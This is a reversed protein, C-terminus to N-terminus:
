PAPVYSFPLDAARIRVATRKRLETLLQELAEQGRREELDARALTQLEAALLQPDKLWSVVEFLYVRDHLEVPESIAGVELRDIAQHVEPPLTDWSVRTSVTQGPSPEKAVIAEEFTLRGRRIDERVLRAAELSPLQLARLEMAQHPLLRDRESEAWATVEEATPAPLVRLVQEQLKEIMLRQRALLEAEPKLPAHGSGEESEEAYVAVEVDTVEIHTRQAELFLLKQDILADLLRSKVAADADGVPDEDEVALLNDALYADLEARPIPEDGVWAVVEREARGFRGECGALLAALVVIAAGPTARRM